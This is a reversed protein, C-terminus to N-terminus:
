NGIESSSSSDSAMRLVLFTGSYGHRIVACNVRVRARVRHKAYAMPRAGTVAFTLACWGGGRHAIEEQEDQDTHQPPLAVTVIPCVYMLARRM